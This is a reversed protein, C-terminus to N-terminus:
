NNSMYDYGLNDNNTFHYWYHIDRSVMRLTHLGANAMLVLLFQLAEISEVTKEIPIIITNNFANMLKKRMKAYKTNDWFEKETNNLDLSLADKITKYKIRVIDVIEYLDIMLSDINDKYAMNAIQLMSSLKMSNNNNWKKLENKM